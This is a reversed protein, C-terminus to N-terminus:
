IIVVVRIRVWRVRAVVLGVGVFWGFDILKIMQIKAMMILTEKHNPCCISPQSVRDTERDDHAM